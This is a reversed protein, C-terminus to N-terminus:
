GLLTNEDPFEGDKLLAPQEPKSELKIQTHTDGAELISLMADLVHFALDGSARHTRGEQIAKAIDLVALGRSNQKFPKTSEVIEAEGWGKRLKIEGNFMNPDPVVLTGESGYVVINPQGPFPFSDFTTFLQGVVGNAFQMTAAISTPTEVTIKQGKLPESGITREPFTIRTAGTVYDIPGFMNVFATLYYPGMDLLPGAGPKYFFEPSPHWGEPGNSTMYGHVAVPTGIAGSEILERVKQHGAGLFTDPACGVRLGKEKAIALLERAEAKNPTLPKENHVHKGAKVVQLAVEGHVKPITLNVVLDVDPHEILADPTLVLGVGYKDAQAQATELRLDAVAVVQTSPFKQLNELYIGSINGTGIIGIRLPDM